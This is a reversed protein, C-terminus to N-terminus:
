VTRYNGLITEPNAHRYPHLSIGDFYDLVGQEFMTDLYRMEVRFSAPGVYIEDPFFQKM